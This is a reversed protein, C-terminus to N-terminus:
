LTYHVQKAEPYTTLHKYALSLKPIKVLSVSAPKFPCHLHDFGAVSTSSLVDVMGSM